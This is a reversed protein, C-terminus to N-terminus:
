TVSGRFRSRRSRTLSGPLLGLPSRLFRVVALAFAHRTSEMLRNLSDVVTLGALPGATM